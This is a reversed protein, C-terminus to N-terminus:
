GNELFEADTGLLRRDPYRSEPSTFSFGGREGDLQRFVTVRFATASRSDCPALDESSDHCLRSLAISDLPLSNGVTGWEARIKAVYFRGM